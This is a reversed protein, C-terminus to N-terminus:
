LLKALFKELAEEPLFGEHRAVINGQRDIVLTTPYVEVAGVAKEFAEVVKKGEDTMMFISPYNLQKEKVWRDHTAQDMDFSFGLFTFGKAAHKKQLEIFGPIEGVCPPCWTAWFNLVLVKGDFDAASIKKGDPGTMSWDPRRVSKTQAPGVDASCAAVALLLLPAFRIM